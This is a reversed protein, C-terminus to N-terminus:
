DEPRWVGSEPDQRLTVARQQRRRETRIKVRARDALAAVKRIILLTLAIAIAATLLKAIMM